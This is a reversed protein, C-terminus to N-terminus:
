RVYQEYPINIRWNDAIIEEDIGDFPNKNEILNESVEVIVDAM